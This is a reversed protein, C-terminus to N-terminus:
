RGRVVDGCGAERPSRSPVRAGDVTRGRRAACRRARRRHGLVPAMVDVAGYSLLYDFSGDASLLLESGVERLGRLYYHGPLGSANASKSGAKATSRKPSAPSACTTALAVDAAQLVRKFEPSSQCM